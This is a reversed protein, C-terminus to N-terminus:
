PGAARAPDPTLFRRALVCCVGACILGFGAVHYLRLTEGLFAIAMIVGFVPILNIFISAKNPGLAQNGINWILNGIVSGITGMALVAGITEPLLPFPRGSLSEAAYFPLMAICGGVTIGFAADTV